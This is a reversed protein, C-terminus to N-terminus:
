APAPVAIPASCARLLALREAAPRPEGFPPVYLTSVQTVVAKGLECLRLEQVKSEAMPLAAAEYVIVDHDGPYHEMLARALAELWRPDSEFVSFSDDGLVAIQWLILAASPDIVRANLFFDRAEYSQCGSAAPDVLLDGILCDEASIGPLMRAEYGEARAQRIAAHSPYVFVGPHGYFVACVLKGRRVAALIEDIMRAYATPRDPADAYFHQLSITNENQKTLWSHAVPNGTLGFVLDANRIWDLAEQTSQTGFCIGMGVVILSGKKM